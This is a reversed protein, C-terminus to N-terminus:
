ETYYKHMDKSDPTVCQRMEITVTHSNTDRTVKVPDSNWKELFAADYTFVYDSTTSIIHGDVSSATLKVYYCDMPIMEQEHSCMILAVVVIALILLLKKMAERKGHVM